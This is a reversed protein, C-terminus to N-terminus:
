GSSEHIDGLKGHELQKTIINQQIISFVSTTLWYLSVAAPLNSFIILTLVPGMVMMMRNMQEAQPEPGAHKKPLSMRVQVFQAIAAAIVVLFSLTLMGHSKLNILDLLTEHLVGPPSVFAYLKAFADAAFINRFISYLPILILVQIILFGFGSFPNIGYEKYLQMMAEGQRKMDSKYEQQIKRVKPQLHQMILQHRTSKHFLPFLVIRILLTVLIIAIGLDHFGVTNYLFVLANLLPRYLIEQYLFSM